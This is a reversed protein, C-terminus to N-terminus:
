FWRGESIRISFLGFFMGALFALLVPATLDPWFVRIVIISALLGILTAIYTVLSLASDNPEMARSM